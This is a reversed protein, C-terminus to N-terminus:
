GSCIYIYKKKRRHEVQLAGRGMRFWVVVTEKCAAKVDSCKKPGLRAESCSPLELQGQARCARNFLANTLSKSEVNYAKPREKEM